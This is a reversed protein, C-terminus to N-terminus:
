QWCSSLFLFTLLAYQAYRHEKIQGNLMENLENGGGIAYDSFKNIVHTFSRQM